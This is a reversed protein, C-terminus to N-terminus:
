THAGKGATFGTRMRRAEIETERLMIVDKLRIPGKVNRRLSKGKEPGALIHAKVQTIEGRTGTRGVIEEIVAPVAIDSFKKTTGKKEESGQENIKSLAKDEKAM